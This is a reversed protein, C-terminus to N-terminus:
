MKRKQNSNQEALRLIFQDMSKNSQNISQKIFGIFSTMAKMEDTKM